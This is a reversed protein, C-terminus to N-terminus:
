RSAIGQGDARQPATSLLPDIVPVVLNQTPAAVSPLSPEGARPMRGSSTSAVPAARSPSGM